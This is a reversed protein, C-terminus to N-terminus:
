PRPCREIGGTPGRRALEARAGMNGGRAADLLEFFDARALEQASSDPRVLPRTTQRPLGPGTARVIDTRGADGRPAPGYMM